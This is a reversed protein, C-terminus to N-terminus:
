DHILFMGIIFHSEKVYNNNVKSQHYLTEAYLYLTEDCSPAKELVKEAEVEAQVFKSLKILCLTKLKRASTVEPSEIETIYLEYRIGDNLIRLFYVDM